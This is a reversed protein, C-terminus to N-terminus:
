ARAVELRQIRETTVERAALRRVLRGTAMTVVWEQTEAELVVWVKQGAYERGLSRPWNYLSIKGDPSVQRELVLETLREGMREWQWLTAEAAPTYVRGSHALGQYAAMRTQGRISPYVSRQIEDLRELREQLDAVSHCQSPEAWAKGVGQSREVVGNQTPQGPDNWHMAVGLGWVWLALVTPLDGGHGWPAGNDM